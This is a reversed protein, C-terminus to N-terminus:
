SKSCEPCEVFEHDKQARCKGWTTAYETAPSGCVRCLKRTHLCNWCVKGGDPPKATTTGTARKSKTPM